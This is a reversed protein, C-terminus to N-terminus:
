SVKPEYCHYRHRHMILVSVHMFANNNSLLYYQSSDDKVIFGGGGGGKGLQPTPVDM